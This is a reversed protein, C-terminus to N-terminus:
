ADATGGNHRAIAYLTGREVSETAELAEVAGAPLFAEIRERLMARLDAAPLAEVEVVGGDWGHARSDTRKPPRTPLGYEAIQAATVALTEFSIAVDPCWERLDREVTRAICRGSPDHDGLHLITTPLGRHRIECAAAHVSSVSAFGRLVFLEVDLDVTVTAVTSAISDSECWVEVRHPLDTWLARRYAQACAWLADEISDHTTPRTRWRTNDALWAFPLDGDRRMGTLQHSLARYERESKDISGESVLRYFLHRLTQPHDGELLAYARARLHEVEARSRRQRKISSTRNRM